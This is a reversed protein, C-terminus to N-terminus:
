RSSPWNRAPDIPGLTSAHILNTFHHPLSAIIVESSEARAANFPSVPVLILAYIFIFHAVRLTPSGNKTSIFIFHAVRLTPSGNKTSIFIFHAVCLTPSGNKTSIFIFHAVRLTPAPRLCTQQEGM